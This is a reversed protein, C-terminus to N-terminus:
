EIRAIINLEIAPREAKQLAFINCCFEFEFLCILSAVRSAFTGRINEKLLIKICFIWKYIGRSQETLHFFLLYSQREYVNIQSM